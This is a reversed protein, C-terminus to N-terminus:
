FRAGVFVLPAYFWRNAREAEKFSEPKNGAFLGFGFAFQPNIFVDFAGLDIDFRYGARAENWVDFSKYYRKENAEWFWDYVPWLQYEVHLNKWAYFRYGLIIAGAHTAGFDFRINMYVPGTLLEHRPTLAYSYQVAYIHIFPSIPSVELGHRREASARALTDARTPAVCLAAALALTAAIARM